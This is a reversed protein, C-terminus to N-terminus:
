EGEERRMMGVAEAPTDPDDAEKHCLEQHKRIRSYGTRSRWLQWQEQSMSSSLQHKTM